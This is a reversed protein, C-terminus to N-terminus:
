KRQATISRTPLTATSNSDIAVSVPLSAATAESCRRRRQERVQQRRKLQSNAQIEDARCRHSRQGLHATSGGQSLLKPPGASLKNKALTNKCWMQMRRQNAAYRVPCSHLLLRLQQPSIGVLGRGPLLPRCCCGAELPSWAQKSQVDWPQASLAQHCQGESQRCSPTYIGHCAGRAAFWPRPATSSIGHVAETSPELSIGRPFGGAVPIPM